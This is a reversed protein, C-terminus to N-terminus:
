ALLKCQKVQKLISIFVKCLITKGGSSTISRLLVDKIMIYLRGIRSGSKRLLLPDPDPDV